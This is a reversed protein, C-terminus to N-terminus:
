DNLHTGCENCFASGPQVPANCNPCKDPSLPKSPFAYGCFNCFKADLPLSKGCSPCSKTNQDQHSHTSPLVSSTNPSVSGINPSVSSSPQSNNKQKKKRASLVVLVVLLGVVLVGVVIVVIVILEETNDSFTSSNVVPKANEKPETSTEAATEAKPEEKPQQDALTRTEALLDAVVPYGPNTENLGRLIDLAEDYKKEQFLTIAKKYQTTFQSETPTVNIEHLFQTAVSIPVAFNMGAVQAGNNPDLMGFTNIGIVEGAENFLPGGSNGGHIAADTQLINWGGAMEKRASIIGGTLTPEQIAKSVNLADNLTAVAPYGMAYVKDGTRLKSDDGLTVTPLNTKDLKLVAVDKGPIPTGMKRLDLGVGKASVDSGPTVNGLFAKYSTQLNDIEIYTAILNFFANMLGDIEEQSMEYGSKRMESAFSNTGEVAYNQLSTMAFDLYLKKEDTAVVHANTILYGDPTVIFGTGVGATSVQESSVNGTAFAYEHMHKIILQVMTSYMAQETNPITGKKIMNTITKTLDKELQNNFSFEYFTLDATWVTQVLVVGPKNIMALTRTDLTPSTLPSKANVNQPIIFVVLIMVVCFLKLVYKKMFVEELKSM